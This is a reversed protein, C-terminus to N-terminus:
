SKPGEIDPFEQKRKQSILAIIISKIFDYILAMGFGLIIQKFTYEDKSGEEINKLAEDIQSDTAGFRELMGRTSEAVHVMVKSHLQPDVIKFLILTVLAYFVEYIIYALFAFVLGEKFSMFGGLQKRRQFAGVIFLVFIIPLWAYWILFSSFTKIGAAWCGFSLASYLLGAIIGFRFSLRNENM